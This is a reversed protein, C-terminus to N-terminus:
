SGENLADIVAKPNNHIVQLYARTPGEPCRAGQEWKELTRLRFGFTRCFDIRSLHLEERIAKVDVEEPIYVIHVKAGKKNGKAYDIAEQVGQIISEGMESM